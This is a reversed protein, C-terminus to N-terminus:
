SSAPESGALGRYEGITLNQVLSEWARNNALGANHVECFIVPVQLRKAAELFACTEPDTDFRLLVAEIRKSQILALAAPYDEFLHVLVKGSGLSNRLRHQGSRYSRDVIIISSPAQTM